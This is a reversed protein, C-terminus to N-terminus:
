LYVPSTETSGASSGSCLKLSEILPVKLIIILLSILSKRACHKQVPTESDYQYPKTPMMIERLRGLAETSLWSVAVKYAKEINPTPSM